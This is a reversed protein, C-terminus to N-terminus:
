SSMALFATQQDIFLRSWNLTLSFRDISSCNVKDQFLSFWKIATIMAVLIDNDVKGGDHRGETTTLLHHKFNIDTIGRKGDEACVIGAFHEGDVDVSSSTVLPSGLFNSWKIELELGCNMRGEPLDLAEAPMTFYGSYDALPPFSLEFKFKMPLNLDHKHLLNSFGGLDLSEDAGVTRDADVNDRELIERVYHLAQVITSKGASNPGFLLTIPKFEVRMPEHIGKFNELTLAKIIM